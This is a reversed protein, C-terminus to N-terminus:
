HYKRIVATVTGVLRSNEKESESLNQDVQNLRRLKWIGCLDVVVIDNPKTPFGKEVILTDGPFIGAEQMDKSGVPLLFSSEKRPMLWEDFSLTDQLEEEAPSPWSSPGSVGGHGGSASGGSKSLNRSKEIDFGFGLFPLLSFTHFIRPM